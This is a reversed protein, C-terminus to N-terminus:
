QPFNFCNIFIVQFKFKSKVLDIYSVDKDKSLDDVHKLSVFFPITKDCTNEPGKLFEDLASSCSFSKEIACCTSNKSM